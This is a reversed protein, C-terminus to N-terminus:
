LTGGSIRVGEARAAVACYQCTIVPEFLGPPPDQFPGAPSEAGCLAEGAALVAGHRPGREALTLPACLVAHVLERSRRGPRGPSAQLGPRATVTAATVDQRPTM